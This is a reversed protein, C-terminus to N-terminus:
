DPLDSTQNKDVVGTVTVQQNDSFRAEVRRADHVVHWATVALRGGAALFGNGVFHKGAANEVDLAVISPSVASYVQEPKLEAQLTLSSAVM